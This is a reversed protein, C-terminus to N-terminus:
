LQTPKAQPSWNPDRQQDLFDAVLERAMPRAFLFGQGTACGDERLLDAQDVREIGEAVTELSLSRGLDVLSRVLAAAASDSSIGDVFARDIKLIDIPFRRLYALSSYGTGFDDIAIRVGLSKIRNLSEAVASPNTVLTSETIELVLLDPELGSAQLAHRVDDILDATDLQRVSVNVAVSLRRGEGQWSVAEMCAERLVWRGIPVILRTEEALPIFDDPSVLGSPHRWRLLAEFGTVGGDQLAITPQFDLTFEDRELALRMDAEMELREVVREHMAAVFVQLGGKGAAKAAYMASDADRLLQDASSGNGALAIGISAGVHVATGAVSIPARLVALLREAIGSAMQPDLLSEAVVAFEDGGMRAITDEPRLVSRFREALNRLLEDGVAHGLGDNVKKFNDLDIFLAALGQGTRNSRAIATELRDRLLARNPLGTLSDHFASHTLERELAKRATVDQLVMLTGAVSPVSELDVLRAAFWQEHADGAARLELEVLEGPQSRCDEVAAVLLPHDEPHFGATYSTRDAAADTGLVLSLAPSEYSIDGSSRFIRRLDSTKETITRFYEEQRELLLRRREQQVLLWMRALVLGTVVVGVVALVVLDPELGLLPQVAALLPGLALAAGVCAMRVVGFTRHPEAPDAIAPLTPHLAAFGYFFTALLYGFFMWPLWDPDTAGVTAAGLDVLFVSMGGTLFLSLARPRRGALLMQAALALVILDLVPYTSYM